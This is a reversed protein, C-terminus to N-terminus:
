LLWYLAPLVVYVVVVTLVTIVTVKIETSM